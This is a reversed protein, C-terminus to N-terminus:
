IASCPPAALQVGAAASSAGAASASYDPLTKKLVPCMSLHPMHFINNLNMVHTHFIRDNPYLIILKVFEEQFEVWLHVQLEQLASSYIM